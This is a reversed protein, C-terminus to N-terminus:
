PWGLGTRKLEALAELPEQHARYDDRTAAPEGDKLYLTAGCPVTDREDGRVALVEGECCCVCIAGDLCDVGFVTGTVEIRTGRALVLLGDRGHEFGPGTAVRVGGDSARLTFPPDAGDGRVGSLDLESRPDVEILLEDRYVLRLPEDATRVVRADAGLLRALEGASGNVPTGDVVLGGAAGAGVVRWSPAESTLTDLWLVLAAAAALAGVGVLIRPSGAASRRRRPLAEDGTGALFRERLRERFEPRARPALAELARALPPEVREALDADGAPEAAEVFSRRLTDRFEPRAHPRLADLARQLEPDIPEEAAGM